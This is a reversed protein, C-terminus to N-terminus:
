MMQCLIDVFLSFFPHKSMLVYAKPCKYYENCAHEDKKRKPSNRKLRVIEYNILCICHFVNHQQYESDGMDDAQMNFIFINQRLLGKQGYLIENIESTDNLKSLHIQDQSKSPFCFDKVVKRRPCDKDGSYVFLLKAPHFLNDPM